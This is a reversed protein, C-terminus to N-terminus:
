GSCYVFRISNQLTPPNWTVGLIIQLYAPEQSTTLSGEPEKFCLSYKFWRFFARRRLTLRLPKKATSTDRYNCLWINCIIIIYNYIVTSSVSNRIRYEDFYRLLNRLFLKNGPIVVCSSIWEYNEYDVKELTILIAWLKRTVSSTFFFIQAHTYM